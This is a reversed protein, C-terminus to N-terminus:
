AVSDSFQGHEFYYKNIYMSIINDHIKESKSFCITKRTLRKIHTRFNLNKREIRGIEDKGILHIYENPFLKRYARGTILIVSKLRFIYIRALLKRLVANQRRGNEWTIIVSTVRDIM